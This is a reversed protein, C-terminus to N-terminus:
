ALALVPVLLCLDAFLRVREASLRRARLHLGVLGLAALIEALFVGSLAGRGARLTLGWAVAGSAALVLGIWPVDRQLAPWWRTAAGPDVGRDLERERSAIVLCNCSVLGAYLPLIRAFEDHWGFAVWVPFTCFLGIAFEKGPLKTGSVPKVFLAFYVLVGPVTLLARRLIEWSVGCALWLTVGLSVLLAGFLWRRHRRGFRLREPVSRWDPCGAVDLLRDALYISWVFLFFGWAVRPPLDQGVARGVAGTWALAVAPSDL